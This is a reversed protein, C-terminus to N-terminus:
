RSLEALAISLIVGAAFTGAALSWLNMPQPFQLPELRLAASVLVGASTGALLILACLLIKASYKAPNL